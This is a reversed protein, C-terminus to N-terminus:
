LVATPVRFVFRLFTMRSIDFDRFKEIFDDFFTM